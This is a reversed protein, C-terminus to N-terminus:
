ETRVLRASSELGKIWKAIWPHRALDATAIQMKWNPAIEIPEAAGPPELWLWGGSANRWEVRAVCPPLASRHSPEIRIV